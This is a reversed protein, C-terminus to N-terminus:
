FPGGIQTSFVDTIKQAAGEKVSVIYHATENQRVVLFVIYENDIWRIASTVGGLNTLKREKDGESLYLDTKGDRTELYVVKTKDPSSHFHKDVVVPPAGTLKDLKKNELHYSYWADSINTSFTIVGKASEIVNFVAENLIKTKNIDGAKVIFIGNNEPSVNDLISYIINDGFLRGYLFRASTVDLYQKTNVNYSSLKSIREDDFKNNDSVYIINNGSWGVISFTEDTKLKVISKSKINILFLQPILNNSAGRIGDRTSDLAVWEYNPSVYISTGSDELGTGELLINQESGDLNSQYLDVKGRRNSLFFDKGVPVLKLPNVKSGNELALETTLEIFSQKFVRINKKVSDGERVKIKALGDADTTVVEGNMEVTAGEIYSDSIANKISFYAYNISSQLRVANLKNLGNEVTVELESETYEEKQVLLKRKGLPVNEMHVIGDKNTDAIQKEVTVRAGQIPLDTQADVVQVEITGKMFLGLFPYKLNTSFVIAFFLILLGVIGVFISTKKHNKIYRKLRVKLSEQVVPEGEFPINKDIDSIIVLDDADGSKRKVDDLNIEMVKDNEPEGVNEEPVVTDEGINEQIVKKAM